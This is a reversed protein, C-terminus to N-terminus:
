IKVVRFVQSNQQNEISLFYFGSPQKGVFLTLVSESQVENLTLEEVVQGNLDLIRILTNGLFNTNFKINLMETVPNPYLNIQKLYNEKTIIRNQNGTEGRDDTEGAFEPCFSNSYFSEGIIQGTLGAPINIEANCNVGDFVFGDPCQNVNQPYVYFGGGYTFGTWGQPILGYWCKGGSVSGDPLIYNANPPCCAEQPCNKRVYFTAFNQNQNEDYVFGGFPSPFTIGSFCYQKGEYEFPTYDTPCCHNSSSIACNPEVYFGNGIIKGKSYGSPGEGYVCNGGVQNITGVPCCDEEDECYPQVYFANEYIFGTYPSSFYVQSHCNVNDFEFGPPCLEGGNLNPYVYFSGNYIFPTFNNPFTVGSFCNAGDFDYGPPCCDRLDECEPEVYFGTENVFPTFYEEDNPNNPHVRPVHIGSNCGGASSINPEFVYGFPCGNNNSPISLNPEVYFTNNYIFPQYGSPVYGYFCNETDYLTNDPCCEYPDNNDACVNIEEGGCDMIKIQRIISREWGCEDTYFIRFTAIGSQLIEFYRKHDTNSGQILSLHTSTTIANITVSHNNSNVNGFNEITIEFIDPKACVIDKYRIAISNCLRYSREEIKVYDIAMETTAEFGVKENGNADIPNGWDTCNIEPNPNVDCDDLAKRCYEVQGTGTNYNVCCSLGNRCLVALNIIPRFWTSESWVNGNQDSYERWPNIYNPNTYYYGEPITEGCDIDLPTGDINYYRYIIASPSQQNNYFWTMKFPSWEFTFTHPGDYLSVEPYHPTSWDCVSNSPYSNQIYYDDGYFREMVEVEEHHWLWFAPWWGKGPMDTIKAEYKGFHHLDLGSLVGSSFERNYTVPAIDDNPDNPNGVDGLYNWTVGNPEHRGTIICKGDELRINGNNYGNSLLVPGDNYIQEECPYHTRSNQSDTGDFVLMWNNLPNPENNVVDFEEDLTTSYSSCDLTGAPIYTKPWCHLSSETCDNADNQSFLLTNSFFVCTLMVHLKFNIKKM